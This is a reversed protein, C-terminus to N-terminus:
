RGSATRMAETVRVFEEHTIHCYGGSEIAQADVPDAKEWWKAVLESAAGVQSPSLVVGLEVNGGQEGGLGSGTLNGSGVLGM